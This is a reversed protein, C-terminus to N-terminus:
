ATAPPPVVADEILKADDFAKTRAALVTADLEEQTETVRQAIPAAAKQTEYNTLTTVVWYRVVARVAADNDLGDTLTPYTKRLAEIIRPVLALPVKM